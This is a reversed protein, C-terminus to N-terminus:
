PAEPELFAAGAWHGRYGWGQRTPWPLPGPASLVHEWETRVEAKNEAPPKPWKAHSGASGLLARQESPLGPRPSNPLEGGSPGAETITKVESGVSSMRQEPIRAVRFRHPTTIGDRGTLPPDGPTSLAAGALTACCTGPDSSSDGRTKGGVALSGVRPQM